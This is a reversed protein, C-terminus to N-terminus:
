SGVSVTLVNTSGDFSFTLLRVDCDLLAKLAGGRLLTGNTVIELPTKAHALRSMMTVFHPHITPEYGSSVITHVEPGLPLKDLLAVDLFREGPVNEYSVHCMRCRLNCAQTPEIEIVKPLPLTM